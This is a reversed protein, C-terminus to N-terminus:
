LIKGRLLKGRMRLLIILASSAAMIYGIWAAKHPLTGIQARVVLAIGDGFVFGVTFWRWSM